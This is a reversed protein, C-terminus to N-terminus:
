APAADLAFWDDGALPVARAETDDATRARFARLLRPAPSKPSTTGTLRPGAFHMTAVVDAIAAKIDAGHWAGPGYGETLIRSLLRADVGIAPETKVM